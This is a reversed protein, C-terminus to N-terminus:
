FVLKAGVTVRAGLGPYGPWLCLRRNALNRGEVFAEVRHSIRWAFDAKLDFDFPAAYIATSPEAVVRGDLSLSETVVSWERRSQLEVGAGFSIKRGEYRLGAAGRFAPEGNAYYEDDNYLYGHAALTLLFSTVPRYEVEGHISGVTQRGRVPHFQAFDVEAERVGDRFFLARSAIWYLHDDHISFGVYARYNVKGRWLSGGIGARANYDVSSRDGQMPGALYPNRSTLSRYDNEHVEGDIEAFPRIGPAGLNFDLHAFPIIYSRNEREGAREIRNYYYDAGAELRVVGGDVGYRAGARILDSWAGDLSKRGAHRDYGAGVSFRHKGFGRAVRASAGLHTERAAEADAYRDSHDFFLGGRLAVEFNTRSLDEFDDGLRVTLNADGYDVRRGPHVFERWLAESAVTAEYGAGYRHYMRNEYSLEGELTHRGLYKGAAAGVRNLMQTSPNKAGYDNRLKGYFGEHNIYGIAYGTGPNQTSAYFDLVSNLPYGAGAKLYFPTPRNFEWYTVTAPRIPRTSLTTTMSLPTITYDIEPRMRTTDTMDPVMALKTASELNPVYAKTVEVQKEVQAGASWPLVAALAAILIIKKM